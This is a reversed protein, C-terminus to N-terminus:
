NLKIVETGELEIREDFISVLESLEYVNKFGYGYLNIYTPINLALTLEEKITETPPIYMKTPFYVEDDDFNNNCYILITTTKSPILAELNKQTFDSFNLHIAGKIHKADYMKKSRTDLILVNEKKSYKNFEEVTLLRAARHPKVEKVLKEFADYDVKSEIQSISIFSFSLLVLSIFNKMIQPKIEVSYMLGFM